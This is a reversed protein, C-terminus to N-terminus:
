RCWEKRMILADEKPNRYYNPRRGAVVFGLKTYLAIAPENSARVELALRTAGKENLVAVLANVLGEGVGMRRCKPSVALNMMDGEGLVTQSGVYGVLNEGDMAVLWASLPNNLEAAITAASWPDSFCVKELEAIAEVHSHNMAVYEIM